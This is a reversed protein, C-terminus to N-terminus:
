MELKGIIPWLQRYKYTSHKLKSQLKGMVVRFRCSVKQPPAQKLQCRLLLM